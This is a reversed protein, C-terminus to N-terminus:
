PRSRPIARAPSACGCRRRARRSRPHHRRRVQGCRPDCPRSLRRSTDPIVRAEFQRRDLLNRGSTARSSARIAPHDSSHGMLEADPGDAVRWSLGRCSLSATDSGTRSLARDHAPPEESALDHSRRQRASGGRASCDPSPRGKSTRGESDRPPRRTPEVGRGCSPHELQVLIEHLAKCPQWRLGGICNLGGQDQSRHDLFIV